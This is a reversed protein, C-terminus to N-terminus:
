NNEEYSIKPSRNQNPQCLPPIDNQWDDFKIGLLDYIGKAEDLAVKKFWECLKTAEPDNQEIKLSWNRAEEIINPNNDEEKSLLPKIKTNIIRELERAGYERTIGKDLIYKKAEKTVNLSIKKALLKAMLEGLKKDVISEAMKEGMHNFMIISSLRNRFEPSFQKKVEEM